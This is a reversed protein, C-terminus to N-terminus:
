VLWSQISNEHKVIHPTFELSQDIMDRGSILNQKHHEEISFLYTKDCVTVSQAPLDVRIQTDSKAEVM